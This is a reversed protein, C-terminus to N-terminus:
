EDAEIAALPATLECVVGTPEYTLSAEGGFRGPWLRARDPPQRVGPQTPTTVPPGDSSSGACGCWRSAARRTSRGIWRSFGGPTSLAGYKAANTALEHVILALSLAAQAGVQVAARGAAPPGGARRRSDGARRPRGDRPERERPHRELLLDHAKGLAILRDALADRAAELDMANRMTQTAIAQVMALTNKMRHSLERNLM